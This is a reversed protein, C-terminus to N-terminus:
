YHWSWSLRLQSYTHSFWPDIFHLTISDQHNTIEKLLTLILIAKTETSFIHPFVIPWCLTFYHFGPSQNERKVTDLDLYGWNLSHTPFSRTLSTYLLPVRTISKRKLLTLIWIAETSTIYPFVVPWRLTFYHFEPSQYGWNLIHTPFFLFDIM